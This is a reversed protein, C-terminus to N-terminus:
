NELWNYFIPEQKNQEEFVKQAEIMKKLQYNSKIIERSPEHKLIGNVFFYGYERIEKNNEAIWAHIRRHQSIMQDKSFCYIGNEKMHLVIDKIIFASYKLEKELFGITFQNIGEEEELIFEKTSLSEKTSFSEKTSQRYNKCNMFQLNQPEIFQLNQPEDTFQLNQPEIEEKKEQRKANKEKRKQRENNRFKELDSHFTEKDKLDMKIKNLYLRNTKHATQKVEELLGVARLEKKAKVITKESVNLVFRLEDNSAFCFMDNNEDIFSFEELSDNEIAETYKMETVSYRKLLYQYLLKADSSLERLEKKYLLFSSAELKDKALVDELNVRNSRTM